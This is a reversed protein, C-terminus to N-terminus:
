RLRAALRRAESLTLSRGELRFTVDGRQWLLTNGAYRPPLLPEILVHRGRIWVAPVDPAVTTWEVGAPGAALKKLVAEGGGSRFETLLVVTQVRVLASVARGRRYVQVGAAAFPVGLLRQAEARTVPAGLSAQLPRSEARPLTAVREITVGRLHFFRLIASRASPVAFAVGVAILVVVAVLALRRRRRQASVPVSFSPTSPWDVDLQEIMRELDTM